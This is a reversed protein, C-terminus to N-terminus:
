KKNKKECKIVGLYKSIFSCTWSTVNGYNFSYGKSIKGVNHENIYLVLDKKIFDRFEYRIM